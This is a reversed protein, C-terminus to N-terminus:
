GVYIELIGCQISQNSSSTQMRQLVKLDSSPLSWTQNTEADGAAIGAVDM